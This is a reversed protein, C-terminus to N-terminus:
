ECKKFVGMQTPSGFEESEDGIGSFTVSYGYKASVAEAWTRFEDRSWEFRHDNHRLNDSHLNKYLTNYDRNPTTLVIAPPSAYRFLVREFVSLRAADLHEIVEM